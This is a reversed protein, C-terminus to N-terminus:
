RLGFCSVPHNEAEAPITTLAMREEIYSVM